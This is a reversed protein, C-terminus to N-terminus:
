QVGGAKSDVLRLVEELSQIVRVGELNEGPEKAEQEGEPGPRRILCAHFGAGVAGYYDSRLSDKNFVQQQLDPHFRM